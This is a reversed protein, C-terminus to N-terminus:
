PAGRADPPPSRMRGDTMTAPGPANEHDESSNPLKRDPGSSPLEVVCGMLRAGSPGFSVSSGIPIPKGSGVVGRATQYWTWRSLPVSVLVIVYRWQSPVPDTLSGEVQPGTLSKVGGSPM